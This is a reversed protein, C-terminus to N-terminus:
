GDIEIEAKDFKKGDWYFANLGDIGEILHIGKSWGQKARSIDTASPSGISNPPHSHYHAAISVFPNGGGDKVSMVINGQQQPDMLFEGTNHYINKIPCVNEAVIRTDDIRRGVLIACCEGPFYAKRQISLQQKVWGSMIITHTKM